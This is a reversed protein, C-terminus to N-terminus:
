IVDAEACVLSLRTGAATAALMLWDPPSSTTTPIRRGSSELFSQPLEIVKADVADPQLALIVLRNECIPHIRSHRSPVLRLETAICLWHVTEGVVAAHSRCTLGMIEQEETLINCPSAFRRLAGWQGDESWFTRTQLKVDMVLLVFSAGAVDITLFACRYIGQPEVDRGISLGSPPLSTVHGTFTNCVRPDSRDIETAEHWSLGTPILWRWLVLLEFRASKFSSHSGLLSSDLRLRRTTEIVDDNDACSSDRHDVIEYSAAVVPDPPPAQLLRRLARDHRRRALARCHRAASRPHDGDDAREIPGRTDYRDNSPYVPNTTLAAPKDSSRPSITDSEFAQCQRHRSEHIHERLRYSIAALLAPDFGGGSTAARLELRRRFGPDDLIARRLPCRDRRRRLARHDRAHSRRGPAGDNRRERRHRRARTQRCRAM